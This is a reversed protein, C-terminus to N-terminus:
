ISRRNRLIMAGAGAVLLSAAGILWASGAFGTRALDDDSPSKNGDTSPEKDGPKVGNGDGPTQGNGDGPTEGPDTAKVTIDSTGAIQGDVIVILQHDGASTDAPIASALTAAGAQDLIGNTLTRPTSHLQLTVEAEPRGESIKVSLPAGPALIAGTAAAGFDVKPTYVVEPVTVIEVEQSSAEATVFDPATATVTVSVKAGLLDEPVEFTAKDAGTIEKGDASWVFELAADAPDTTADATLTAGIYPSGSITPTSLAVVRDFNVTYEKTVEGDASTVTITAVQSDGSAQTVKVTAASDRAVGTVLPFESGTVQVSYTQTATDFNAVDAGGVTLRALDANDASSAANAFIEVESVIMHSQPMFDLVFRVAEAQVGGLDFEFVPADDTKDATTSVPALSTWETSGPARFQPTVTKAWSTSSGDKFFYMKASGVSEPQSLVYTLTEQPNKESKWNSWAKDNYVGNITGSMSYGPEVFTASPTSQPAINKATAATVFITLTAAVDGEASKVSGPVTLTGNKDLDAQTLGSWDWTVAADFRNESSGIQAPVVTPASEKVVALSAAAHVTLSVPDTSTFGGIEVTAKASDFANGFLDIGSGTITIIGTKNWDVNTTDWTVAVPAAAGYSYNPVVTAPLEAPVGATTNLVIPDVSILETDLLTWRQHQGNGSSWTGVSAGEASSQGNVDLVQPMGASLLSYDFGNTTTPIWQFERDSAAEQATAEVMRTGSSDAALYRGTRDQLTIRERDSQGKTLSTVSWVQNEILEASAAKITTGPSKNDTASATLARGSGLGTIQYDHGDRLLPADDAVGSVGEVVFTTVSKAPVTLTATKSVPDVSVKTGEILANKSIQDAPSETTVIPTVTAGDVNAFRSLDLVIQREANASNAHVLNVGQQDATVAATTSTNNTPVIHDGPTIYHTFNRLTDFKSNTLVKCSPDADGDALRRESNGDANCDFDIFVSGWNLKEVKEMNYLDEVPQWLVWATPELERLDGIIHSALGIGNDINAQNFGGSIWNGEVESMWLPKDSYKAIDRVMVRDSTGYTHVNLQDVADKSDQSWGNWNRVFTGPNTEDMASIVADTTTRPAKLRADLAQIVKDQKEPGIHAGEQRSASTPWGNGGLQTSWYNTNPENFPDITDFKIGHSKELQETVTALYEVFADIDADPLQEKNGDWLGGSTFGSETLFYPPSNSFAEWKTVTDKLADLWWRQTADADLNYHSLDSGDWADRYRDRDDFKSTITGQADSEGLDPNWWGEVAGGPRLYGPVDSANGGGINYRAINLRLGDEGFVKDFLDQRINEPYGGTANAFWVLSTGWGEFAAGQYGPNPTITIADAAHAPAGVATLASTALVASLAAASIRARGNSRKTM